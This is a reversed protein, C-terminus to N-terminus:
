SFGARLFGWTRLGLTSCLPGTESSARAKSLSPQAPGVLTPDSAGAAQLFPVARHAKGAEGAKDKKGSWQGRRPDTFNPSEVVSLIYGLKPPLLFSQSGVPCLLDGVEKELAGRLQVSLSKDPSCSCPDCGPHWSPHAHPQLFYLCNPFTVPARTETSAAHWGWMVSM